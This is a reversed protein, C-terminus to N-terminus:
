KVLTVTQTAEFGPGHLRVLYVGSPVARGAGDRGQWPVTHRGATFVGRALDAVRRGRLDHISLGLERTRGVDFVITTSPNFPNPYAPALRTRALEGTGPVDTPGYGDDRRTILWGSYLIVEGNFAMGYGTHGPYPFEAELTPQAPLTIDYIRSLGYSTLHLRTGNFALRSASTDLEQSSVVQPAAPDQVDVVHLEGLASGSETVVYVHDGHLRANRIRQEFVVSGVLEPDSIDGLSVLELEFEGSCVLLRDHLSRPWGIDNTTKYVPHLPDQIGYILSTPEFYGTAIVVLEETMVAEVFSTGPEDIQGLLVPAAPDGIDLLRGQGYESYVLALDNSWAYAGALGTDFWAGLSPLAPNTIDVPAILNSQEYDVALPMPGVGILGALRPLVLRDVPNTPTTLHDTRPYVLMREAESVLIRTAGIVLQDSAHELIWGAAPQGADALGFARVRQDSTAALLLEDARVLTLGSADEGALLVQRAVEVPATPTSVDLSLLALETAAGSGSAALLYLHGDGPVMADIRDAAVAATGLDVPHLPDSVDLIRLTAAEDLLYLTNGVASFWRSTTRTGLLEFDAFTPLQPDSLDYAVLHDEAAVLVAPDRLWGSSFTSGEVTGQAVPAAPDSIDVVMFGSPFFEDNLAVLLDGDVLVERWFGDISHDFWGLIQPETPEAHDRLVEYLGVTEIVVDDHLLFPKGTFGSGLVTTGVDDQAAVPVAALAAALALTLALALRTALRDTNKDLPM